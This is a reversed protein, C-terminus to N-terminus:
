VSFVSILAGCLAKLLLISITFDTKDLVFYEM